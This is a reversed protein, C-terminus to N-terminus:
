AESSADPGGSGAQRVAEETARLSTAGTFGRRALYGHLRRRARERRDTFDPDALARAVEAPQRRLWALAAGEALAEESAGEDDFVEAIAGEIVEPAVGRKGLEATLLRRGRPRLRLRDRVFARAFSADDVLGREELKDLCTRIVAAPFGKQHLRSRLEARSRARHSLLRLAAERSRWHLAAEELVSRLHEDLPDGVHLNERAFVDASVDLSTEDDLCVRVHDSALPEFRTIRPTASPLNGMTM